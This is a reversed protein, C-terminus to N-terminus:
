PLLREGQGATIGRKEPFTLLHEACTLKQAVGADPPGQLVELSCTAAANGTVTNRFCCM